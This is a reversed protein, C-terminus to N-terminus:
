IHILSLNYIGTTNKNLSQYGVATNNAGTTNAALAGNGHVTNTSVNGAGAGITQSNVTIDTTSVFSSANITAGTLTLNGISTTTNGLYVATNGLTIPTAFNADLQSLPISSTATAFTYTVAM